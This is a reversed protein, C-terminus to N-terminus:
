PTGPISWAASEVPVVMALRRNLEVGTWTGAPSWRLSFVVKSGEAGEPPYQALTRAVEEASLGAMTPVDTWEVACELRLEPASGAAGSPYSIVTSGTAGPGLAGFSMLPSADDIGWGGTCTVASSENRIEARMTRGEAPDSAMESVEMPLNQRQWALLADLMVGSGDQEPAVASTGVSAVSGGTSTSDSCACVGLLSCVGISVGRMLM